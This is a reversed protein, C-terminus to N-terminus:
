KHIKKFCESRKVKRYMFDLDMEEELNKLIDDTTCYDQEVNEAIEDLYYKFRKLKMKGFGFKSHLVDLCFLILTNTLRSSVTNLIEQRKKSLESAIIDNLQEQTLTYVKQKPVSVGSKKMKRREARNM